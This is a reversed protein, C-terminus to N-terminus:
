GMPRSMSAQYPGAIGSFAPRTPMSQPAAQYPGSIGSHTAMAPRPQMPQTQPAAQQQMWQQQDPYGAGATNPMGGPATAPSQQYPSSYPPPSPGPGVRPPEVAAGQFGANSVMPSNRQM